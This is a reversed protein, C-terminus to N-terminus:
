VFDVFYSYIKCVVDYMMEMHRSIEKEQEIFQKNIAKITTELVQSDTEVLKNETSWQQLLQQSRYLVGGLRDM